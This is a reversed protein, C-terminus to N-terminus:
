RPPGGGGGALVERLREPTVRFLLYSYGVHGVPTFNERLWRYREPEYVGVLKNAGVLILGPQPLPPEIV